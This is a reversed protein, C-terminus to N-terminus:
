PLRSLSRGQATLRHFRKHNAAASVLRNNKEVLVISYGHDRLWVAAHSGSAGGGIIAVDRTICQGPRSAAALQGLAVTAYYLRMKHQPERLAGMMMM